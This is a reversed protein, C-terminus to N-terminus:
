DVDKTFQRCQKVCELNSKVNKKMVSKQLRYTQYISYKHRICQRHYYHRLARVHVRWEAKTNWYM